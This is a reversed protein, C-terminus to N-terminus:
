FLCCISLSFLVNKSPRIILLTGAPLIHCFNIHLARQEETPVRPASRSTSSEQAWTFSRAAKARLRDRNKFPNKAEQLTAPPFPRLAEPV